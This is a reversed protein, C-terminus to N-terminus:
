EFGSWDGNRLKKAANKWYRSRSRLDDSTELTEEDDFEEAEDSMTGMIGSLKTALGELTKALDDRAKMIDAQADIEAKSTMGYDDVAPRHCEEGGGDEVCQEVEKKAEEQMREADAIFERMADQQEQLSALTGEVNGLDINGLGDLSDLVGPGEASVHQYSRSLIAISLLASVGSLRALINTVMM